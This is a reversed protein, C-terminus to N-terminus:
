EWLEFDVLKIPEEISLIEGYKQMEKYKQAMFFSFKNSQFRNSDEVMLSAEQVWATSICSMKEHKM